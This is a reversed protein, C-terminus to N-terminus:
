DQPAKVLGRGIDLRDYPKRFNKRSAACKTNMWINEADFDDQELLIKEGWLALVGAVHPTAMSTGDMKKFGGGSKASIIDMGPATLEVNTNSFSATYYGEDGRGVAGIAKIDGAAAPPTAAIEHKSNLERQSDNGSAALLIVPQGESAWAAATEAIRTFLLINERYRELAKSTAVESPFGDRVFRERMAPFDIGLSM